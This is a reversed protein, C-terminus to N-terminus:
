NRAKCTTTTSNEFDHEIGAFIDIIEKTKLEKIIEEKAKPDSITRQKLVGLKM